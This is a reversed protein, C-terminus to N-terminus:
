SPLPPAAKGTAEQQAVFEDQKRGDLIAGWILLALAAAVVLTVFIGAVLIGGDSM